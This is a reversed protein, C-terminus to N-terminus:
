DMYSCFQPPQLSKNASRMVLDQEGPSMLFHNSLTSISQNLWSDSNGSESPGQGWNTKSQDIFIGVALPQAHPLVSVTTYTPHLSSHSIGWLEPFFPPICLKLLYLWGAMHSKPYIAVEPSPKSTGLRQPLWTM